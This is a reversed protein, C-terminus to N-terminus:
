ITLIIAMDPDRKKTANCASLSSFTLLGGDNVNEQIKGFLKTAAVGKFLGQLRQHNLCNIIVRENTM